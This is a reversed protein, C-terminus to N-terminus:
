TCLLPSNHCFNLKNSFWNGTITLLVTTTTKSVLYISFLFVLGVLWSGVFGRRKLIHQFWSASSKPYRTQKNKYDVYYIGFRVSYGSDWEFNDLLSWAFYGRVDSGDRCYHLNQASHLPNFGYTSSGGLYCPAPQHYTGFDITLLLVVSTSVLCGCLGMWIYSELNPWSKKNVCQELSKNM